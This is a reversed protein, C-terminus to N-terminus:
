NWKNVKILLDAKQDGEIMKREMALRKWFTPDGGVHITRLPGLQKLERALSYHHIKMLPAEYNISSNQVEQDLVLVYGPGEQGEEVAMLTLPRVTHDLQALEKFYMRVLERDMKEGAMDVGGTRGLFTLCPIGASLGTVQMKDPLHYRFFGSGTSLVPEVLDGTKLEWSPIIEGQRLFEYFHSQYALLQQGQFPFSVVGETALLGKGQLPVHPFFSKLKDAWIASEASDWCSILCLKPWLIRVLQHLDASSSLLRATEKCTRSTRRALEERNAEMEYLLSLMFTPSWVSILSLERCASLHTLTMLTSEAVTPAAQVSPPVAMIPRLLLESARGLLKLDDNNTTARLEQPLWSLSWYHRGQQTGPYQEYIDHMWVMLAANLEALFEKTYPIWKRAFTSGSTPQYSRVNRAILAEGSDRQQSVQAQWDIWSTLKLQRNFDSYSWRENLGQRQGWSTQASHAILRQLVQLQTTKLEGNLFQRVRPQAMKKFAFHLSSTLM